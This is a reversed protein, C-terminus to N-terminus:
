KQLPLRCAAGFSIRGKDNVAPVPLPLRCAAGFSIRGNDTVAPLALPLRCAAGFSIRGSDTVAPVPGQIDTVAMDPRPLDALSAQHSAADFTTM